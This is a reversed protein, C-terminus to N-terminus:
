HDDRLARPFLINNEVHIHLHLDRELAELGRYLGSWSGCAQAPIAYQGCLTRLRELLRGVREHEMHMVRIPAPLNASYRNVIWPFLVREEKAMHEVLDEKLELYAELVEVLHPHEPGHHAAVRRALGELRPLELDLPRHFREVLAPVFDALSLAAWDPEGDPAAPLKELAAILAQPDVGRKECADGVLTQGGCCYDLGFREFVTSSAPMQLVVQALPQQLVSANM